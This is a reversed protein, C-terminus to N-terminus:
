PAKCQELAQRADAECAFPQACLKKFAQREADRHQALPQDVPRHVRKHRAEAYVVLWRQEVGGCHSSEERSHSGDTLPAM